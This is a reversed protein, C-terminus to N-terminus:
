GGAQNRGRCWRVLGLGAASTGFLFITTPEPVTAPPSAGSLTRIDDLGVIDLQFTIGLSSFLKSDTFGVFVSGGGPNPLTISQPSGDNFAITEGDSQLGTLYAGFASTPSSFSLTFVGGGASAFKTGGSTTNYGFVNDPTGVPTNRITQNFVM